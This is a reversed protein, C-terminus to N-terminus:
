KVFHFHHNEFFRFQEDKIDTLNVTTAVIDEKGIGHWADICDVQNGRDVIKRVIRIFSITAAIEDDGEEYWDEPESFGLEISLLHRFTCSCGSKSEVYWKNEYQLLSAIAQDLHKKEFRVLESNEKSLDEDLDTSVYVSYCM